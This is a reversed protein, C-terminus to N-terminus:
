EVVLEGGTLSITVAGTEDTRRVVAGTARYEAITQAAPHGYSNGEGASAVAVGPHWWSAFAPDQHDSGHHPMVVVDAGGDRWFRMIAAQSEPEIDGPILARLGDPWEVVVVLSGNNAEAAAFRRGAPPWLATATVDGWQWRDGAAAQMPISGGSTLLGAVGSRTSSEAAGSPVFVQDPHRTVLLEPLGGVHDIHFHSVVLAAIDAVGAQALCQSVDGGGPGADFLVPGAETHVLVSTGQGVDCVVMRWDSAMPGFRLTAAMIVTLVALGPVRAHAGLLRHALCWLAAAAAVLGIIRGGRPGWPGSAVWQAAEAVWLMVSALGVAPVGLAAGLPVWVTALVAAAVGLVTIVPVLPAVAVNAPLAVWSVPAGATMLLPATVLHAVGAVAIASALRGPLVGRLRRSCGPAALLLGTTAAVSLAFALSRALDPSVVLLMTVCGSLLALGRFRGGMLVGVLGIAAMTAARLVSPQPGVVIGYTVLATAALGVQVPLKMRRLRAVLLVTGMVIVFNGGSVATLHSLGSIQMTQALQPSQGSEDGVAIGAVLAAAQESGSGTSATLGARLRTIAAPIAAPEGEQRAVALLEMAAATDTARGPLIRCRVDLTTGPEASVPLLSTEAYMRAPIDTQWAVDGVQASELRVPVSVREPMGLDVPIQRPSASVTVRASVTRGEVEDPVQRASAGAASVLAAAVLIVALPRTTAMSATLGGTIAVLAMVLIPASPWLWGVWAGWWAAAAVAPAAWRM